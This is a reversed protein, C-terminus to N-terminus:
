LHYIKFCSDPCLGITNGKDDKCTDCVFATNKRLKNQHCVRCRKRIKVKMLNHTKQSPTKHVVRQNYSIGILYSAVCKRFELHAMNKVHINYLINGNWLCMDMLHFFVKIYWRLCKRPTPYYSIMQDARDIGSMNNNYDVIINPKMKNRGFKDTVEVFDLKQKTSIMCVDRKDNYKIVHINGKQVHAVEGKGLKANLTDKPNDKRNKRLTGVVMTQNEFLFQALPISNYFNDMYVTHGKGLYPEMLKAVIGFTVGRSDEVTGKGKYILINLIFGDKTCLEYSKIGYKHAKSPIYQRFSLRGRWLLLSEDLSLNENPYYKTRINNIIHNAVNSIKHLRDSHDVLNPQYFCLCRLISEYRHRSMTKGFIPHYDIENHSWYTRLTPFKLYGMLITLGLFKKLEVVDTNHWTSLNSRPTLGKSILYNARLNVWVVINDLLEDDFFLNFFSYPEDDPVHSLLGPNGTFPIFQPEENRNTEWDDSIFDDETDSSVNSYDSVEPEETDGPFYEDSSDDYDNFSEDDSSAYLLQNIAAPDM